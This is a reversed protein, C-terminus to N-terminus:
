ASRSIVRGRSRITSRAVPLWVSNNMIAVTLWKLKAPETARKADDIMEMVKHGRGRAILQLPSCGGFNLNKLRLWLAIKEYDAFVIHLNVIIECLLADCKVKDM